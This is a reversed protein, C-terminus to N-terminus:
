GIHPWDKAIKSCDKSFANCDKIIGDCDKVIFTVHQLTVLPEIKAFTTGIKMFHMAIQLM